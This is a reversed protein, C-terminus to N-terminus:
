HLSSPPSSSSPSSPVLMSFIYKQDKEQLFVFVDSLLLAHVDKLRGQVNKLQLGGDHVLRRRLLDERAFIQGSKMMMISKSDMRGHFDKLRKRKEHDNVKSDVAAIVEKVLRVALSLDEHDEES